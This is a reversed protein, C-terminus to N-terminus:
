AKAGRSSREGVNPAPRRRKKAPAERVHLNLGRANAKLGERVRPSRPRVRRIGSLRSRVARDGRTRNVTASSARPDGFSCHLKVSINRKSVQHRPASAVARSKKKRRRIQVNKHSSAWIESTASKRQNPARPSSKKTRAASGAFSEGKQVRNSNSSIKKKKEESAPAFAVWFGFRRGM